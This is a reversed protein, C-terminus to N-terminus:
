TLGQLRLWTDLLRPLLAEIGAEHRRWKQPDPPTLTFKSLPLPSHFKAEMGSLPIDLFECVRGVAARPDSVLDAYNLPMWRSRPLQQLDDLVIRNTTEWQFAAIEAV